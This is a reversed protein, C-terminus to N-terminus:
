FPAQDTTATITGGLLWQILAVAAELHSHDVHDPHIPQCNHPRLVPHNRHGANIHEVHRSGVWDRYLNFTRHGALLAHLEGAETLPTPDLHRDLGNATCALIKSKCHRCTTLTLTNTICQGPRSIVRPKPATM